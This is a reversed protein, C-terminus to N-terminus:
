MRAAGRAFRKSVHRLPDLLEDYGNLAAIRSFWELVNPFDSFDYINAIHTQDLDVCVFLDAISLEDVLFNRTSLHDDLVRLAATFREVEGPRAKRNLLKEHLVVRTGLRSNSHAWHLWQDVLARKQVDPPYIGHLKRSECVYAMIAAAESLVFGEDDIVPVLGNPNLKLFWESKNELERLKVKRFEYDINSSALLIRVARTPQSLPSGYVIM